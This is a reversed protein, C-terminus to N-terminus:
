PLQQQLQEVAEPLKGDALQAAATRYELVQLAATLQDRALPVEIDLIALRQKCLHLEEGDMEHAAAKQALQQARIASTEARLDYLAEQTAAVDLSMVRLNSAIACARDLDQVAEQAAAIKAARRAAPKVPQANAPEGTPRTDEVRHDGCDYSEQYLQMLNLIHAIRKRHVDIVESGEDTIEDLCLLMAEEAEKGLRLVANVVEESYQSSRPPPAQASRRDAPRLM